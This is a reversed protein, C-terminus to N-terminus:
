VLMPKLKRLSTRRCRGIGLSAPIFEGKPPYNYLTFSKLNLKFFIVQLKLNKSTAEDGIPNKHKYIWVFYKDGSVPENQRALLMGPVLMFLIKSSPM